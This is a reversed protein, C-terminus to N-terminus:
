IENNSFTRCVGLIKKPTQPMQTALICLTVQEILDSNYECEELYKHAIQVSHKEHGKYSLVFGTDHFWASLILIETEESTLAMNKSILKVTEVVSLTHDINHYYMNEPLNKLLGCVFPRVNRM